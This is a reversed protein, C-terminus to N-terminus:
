LELSTLGAVKVMGAGELNVTGDLAIKQTANFNTSFQFVISVVDGEKLRNTPYNAAGYDFRAFAPSHAANESASECGSGVACCLLAALLCVWMGQWVFRKVRATRTTSDCDMETDM